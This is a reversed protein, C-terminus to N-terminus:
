RKLFKQPMTSAQNAGFFEILYMGEALHSVPIQRYNTLNQKEVIRGDLAYIAYQTPTFTKNFAFNLVNDAPNPFFKVRTRTDEIPRINITAPEYIDVSGAIESGGTVMVRTDSLAVGAYQLRGEIDDFVDVTFWDGTQSDYLLTESFVLSEGGTEAMGGPILINGDFPFMQHFSQGFFMDDAVVTFTNTTPNYVEASTLGQFVGTFTRGGTILVNDSGPILLAAHHDRTQNMNPVATWTNLVPDYLEALNLQFGLDPNFGGTVLVKGNNLLTATHMSRGNIMPARSIITNTVPNYLDVSNTNTSGTFGGTILITGDQLMVSRHDSRGVSMNPGMVWEETNFDYIETSIWNNAGGDWGGFVIAKENPLAHATATFRANFMAMPLEWEETEFDYIEASTLNQAGPAFLPNFGGAILVQGNSLQVIVHGNREDLFPEISSFSQSFVFLSQMLLASMLYIKKM